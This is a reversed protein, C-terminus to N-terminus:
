ASFHWICAADYLVIWPLPRADVKLFDRRALEWGDLARQVWSTEQLTFECGNPRNPTAARLPAVAAIAALVAAGVVAHRNCAVLIGRWPGRRENAPSVPLTDYVTRKGGGPASTSMPPKRSWIFQEPSPDGATTM